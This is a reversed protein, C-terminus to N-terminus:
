SSCILEGRKENLDAMLHKECMAKHLALVLHSFTHKERCSRFLGIESQLNCIASQTLRMDIRDACAELGFVQSPIASTLQSASQLLSDM